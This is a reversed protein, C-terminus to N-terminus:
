FRMDGTKENHKQMQHQQKAFFNFIEKFHM